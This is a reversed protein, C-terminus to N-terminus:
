KGAKAKAMVLNNIFTVRREKDNKIINFYVNYSTQFNKCAEQLNVNTSETYGAQKKKCLITRANVRCKRFRRNILSWLQINLQAKSVEPSWSIKGDHLKRCSKEAHKMGQVQLADIAAYVDSVSKEVPYTIPIKKLQSVKWYINHTVFFKQLIGTYRSIIRPDNLKLLMAQVKVSLAGKASFISMEDIDLLLLRHDRAGDGFSLYGSKHLRVNASCMITDIPNSGRHYTRPSNKRGVMDLMVDRMSLEEKWETM